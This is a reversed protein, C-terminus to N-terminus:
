VNKRSKAIAEVTYTGEKDEIKMLRQRMKQIIVLKQREIQQKPLLGLLELNSNLRKELKLIYEYLPSLEEHSEYPTREVCKKKYGGGEEAKTYDAKYSWVQQMPKNKVFIWFQVRAIQIVNMAIEGIIVQIPFNIEVGMKQLDDTLSTVTEEFISKEWVYKRCHEDKISNIQSFDKKCDECDYNHCGKFGPQFATQLIRGYAEM